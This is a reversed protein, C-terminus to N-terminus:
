ADFTIIYNQSQGPIDRRDQIGVRATVQKELLDKTDFTETGLDLAAFFSGTSMSLWKVVNDPTKSNTAWMPLQKWVWRFGKVEFAVNLVPKGAFEGGKITTMEASKITMQHAGPDLLPLDIETKSPNLAFKPISVKTMENEKIKLERGSV